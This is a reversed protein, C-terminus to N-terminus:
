RTINELWQRNKRSLAFINKKIRNNAIQEVQYPITGDNKDIMAYFESETGMWYNGDMSPCGPIKIKDTFQWMIINDKIKKTWRDMKVNYQALWFKYDAGFAPDGAYYSWWSATTYVIPQRGSIKEMGELMVFVQNAIKKAMETDYDWRFMGDHAELDLIPPFDHKHKKYLSEFLRLQKSNGVKPHYFFYSGHPVDADELSQMNIGYYDDEYYPNKNSNEYKSVYEGMKVLAFSVGGAILKYPDVGKQWHSFDAGLIM